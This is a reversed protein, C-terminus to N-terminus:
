PVRCESTLLAKRLGLTGLPVRTKAAIIRDVLIASTPSLRAAQVYIGAGQDTNRRFPGGPVEVLQYQGEALESARVPVSCSMPPYSGVRVVPADTRENDEIRLSVYLWWDNDVPLRDLKFQINWASTQASMRAAAGDSAIPDAIIGTDGYRNFSLDQFDVWDSIPLGSLAPPASPSRREIRLLELLEAADGDQRYQLVNEATLTARLRALRKM